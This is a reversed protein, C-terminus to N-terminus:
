YGDDHHAQLTTSTRKGSERAAEAPVRVLDAAPHAARRQLPAQARNIRVLPRHHLQLQTTPPLMRAPHHLVSPPSLLQLRRRRHLISNEQRMRSRAQGGHSCAAVRGSKSMVPSMRMLVSSLTAACYRRRTRQLYTQARRFTGHIRLSRAGMSTWRLVPHPKYIVGFYSTSSICCNGISVAAGNVMIASDVTAHVDCNRLIMPLLTDQDTVPLTEVAPHHVLSGYGDEEIQNWLEDDSLGSSISLTELYGWRGMLVNMKRNTLTPRIGQAGCIRVPLCAVIMGDGEPAYDTLDIDNQVVITSKWMDCGFGVDMAAAVAAHLEQATRVKKCVSESPRAFYFRNIHPYGHLIPTLPVRCAAGGRGCLRLLTNEEVYLAGRRKCSQCHSDGLRKAVDLMTLRHAKMAKAIADPGLRGAPDLEFM